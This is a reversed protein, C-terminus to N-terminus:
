ARAFQGWSSFNRRDNGQGKGGSTDRPAEYQEDVQRNKRSPREHNRHCWGLTIWMGACDTWAIECRPNLTVKDPNQFRMLTPESDGQREFIGESAKFYLTQSSAGVGTVLLYSVYLM